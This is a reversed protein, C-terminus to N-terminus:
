GADVALDFGAVGNIFTQDVNQGNLDARSIATANSDTWYVHGSDVALGM